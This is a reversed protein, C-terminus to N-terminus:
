VKIMWISDLIFGKALHQRLHLKSIEPMATLAYQNTPV